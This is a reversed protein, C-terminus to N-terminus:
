IYGEEVVISDQYSAHMCFNTCGGGLYVQRGLYGYALSIIGCECVAQECKHSVNMKSLNAIENSTVTLTETPTQKDTHM